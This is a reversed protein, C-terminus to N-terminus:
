RVDGAVYDAYEEDIMGENVFRLPLSAFRTKLEAVAAEFDLSVWAVDPDGFAIEPNLPSLHDVGVFQQGKPLSQVEFIWVSVGSTHKNLSAWRIGSTGFRECRSLLTQVGKGRDLALRAEDETLHRRGM